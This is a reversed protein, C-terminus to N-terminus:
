DDYTDNGTGGYFKDDNSGGEGYDNGDGAQIEDAFLDGKLTDNGIGGVILYGSLPVLHPLPKVSFRNLNDDGPTGYIVQLDGRKYSLFQDSKINNLYPIGDTATLLAIGAADKAIGSATGKKSVKLENVFEDGLFNEFYRYNQYLKGQSGEFNIYVPERNLSLNYPDFLPKFITTNALIAVFSNSNFNFDDTFPRVDMQTITRNRGSIGGISGVEFTISKIAFGTSGFIYSREAHDASSIDTGYQSIEVKFDEDGFGLGSGNTITGNTTSYNYTGNPIDITFDFFKEVASFLSPYAYRGGGNEMYDSMDYPIPEPTSGFPRIHSNYDPSLPSSTGFVLLKTLKTPDIPNSSSYTSM